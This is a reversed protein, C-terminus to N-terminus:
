LEPKTIGKYDRMYKRAVKVAMLISETGGSTINGCVEQTGVADPLSGRPRRSSREEEESSSRAGLLHATMAVVENEMRVVSPFVDPHLPNTHAFRTPM